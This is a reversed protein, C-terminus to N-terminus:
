EKEYNAMTFGLLYAYKSYKSILKEYNDLMEQFANHNEYPIFQKVLTIIEVNKQLILKTEKDEAGKKVLEENYNIM